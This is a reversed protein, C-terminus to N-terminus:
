DDGNRRALLHPAITYVYHGPEGSRVALGFRVLRLLVRAAVCRRWGATRFAPLTSTGAAILSLAKADSPHYCEPWGLRECKRRDADTRAIALRRRTERTRPPQPPRPESRGDAAKLNLRRLLPGLTSYPISLEQHIVLRSKGEAVLRRIADETEATIARRTRHGATGRRYLRGVNGPHRGLIRAVEKQEIGSRVMEVCRRVEPYTWHRYPRKAKAESV